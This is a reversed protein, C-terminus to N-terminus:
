LNVKSREGRVNLCTRKRVKGDKDLITFSGEDSGRVHNLTVKKDTVSLRSQYNEAPTVSQNLLVVVPPETTQNAQTHSPRFELTIPSEIGNVPVSYMDGYKM